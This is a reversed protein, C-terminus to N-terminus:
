TGEDNDLAWVGAGTHRRRRDKAEMLGDGTALLPTFAQELM